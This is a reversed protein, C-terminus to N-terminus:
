EFKLQRLPAWRDEVASDECRCDTENLDIGCRPCLGKCEETCDVFQPAALVVEARLPGALDLAADDESFAYVEADEAELQSIGQRFRLTIDEHVPVRLDKLCRRCSTDLEGEITGEVVVDPGTQQAELSARVPGHFKLETNDWLPDQAPIEENIRLRRERELRTLDVKLM